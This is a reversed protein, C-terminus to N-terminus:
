ASISLDSLCYNPSVFSRAALRQGDDEKPEPTDAPKQRLGGKHPFFIEAM